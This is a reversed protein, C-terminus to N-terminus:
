KKMVIGMQFITLIQTLFSDSFVENDDFFYVEWDKMRKMRIAQYNEISGYQKNKHFCNYVEVVIKKEVNVFDPYCGRIAFRKDKLVGDGTYELPINYEKFVNICHQELSNPFPFQANLVKTIHKQRQEETLSNWYLKTRIKMAEVIEKTYKRGRNADGIKRKVENPTKWGLKNQNGLVRRRCNDKYDQNYKRGKGSKSILERRIKERECGIIQIFSVGKRKKSMIDKSEQSHHYSNNRLRTQVGKEIEEISRKQGKIAM